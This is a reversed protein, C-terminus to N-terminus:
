NIYIHPRIVFPKTSHWSAPPCKVQEKDDPPQYHSYLTGRHRVPTQSQTCQRAPSFLGGRVWFSRPKKKEGSRESKSEYRLIIHNIITIHSITMTGKPTRLLPKQFSRNWSGKHEFWINWKNKPEQIQNSKVILGSRVKGKAWGHPGVARHHM